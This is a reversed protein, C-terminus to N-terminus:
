GLHRWIQKVTYSICLPTRLQTSKCNNDPIGHPSRRYGEDVDPIRNNQVDTDYFTDGYWNIENFPTDAFYHEKFYIYIYIYLDLVTDPFTM